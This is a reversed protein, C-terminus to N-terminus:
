MGVSFCAPDRQFPTIVSPCSRAALRYRHEERVCDKTRCSACVETWVKAVDKKPAPTQALLLPGAVLAGTGVVIASVRLLM